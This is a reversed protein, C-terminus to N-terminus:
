ELILGIHKRDAPVLAMRAKISQHPHAFVKKKNVLVKGMFRPTVGFLCNAVEERGSGILGAVGVIEGAHAKLSVGRLTFGFLNEAELVVRGHETIARNRGM